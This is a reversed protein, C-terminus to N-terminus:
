PQPTPQRRRKPGDIEPVYSVGPGVYRVCTCAVYNWDIEMGHKEWRVARKIQDTCGSQDHMSVPHGCTCDEQGAVSRRHVIRATLYGVIYGAALLGGGALLDLFM